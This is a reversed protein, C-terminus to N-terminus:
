LLRERLFAVVADYALRTPHGPRDVFDTTLVSHAWPKVGHRNFLSSDIEIRRFREGLQDSLYDFRAKPCTVDHTFRLGLVPVGDRESRDRAAAFDEATVGTTPTGTLYDLAGDLHAPEAMVPAAVAADIMLTLVFGGTFCMGIAGVPRGACELQM